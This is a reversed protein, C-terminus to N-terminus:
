HGRERYQSVNRRIQGLHKEVHQVVLHDVIFHAPKRGFRPNRSTAEVDLEADTLNSLTAASDTAAARVAGTVDRLTRTSTNSVAALRDRDTHDRGWLEQPRHIARLAQATWYPIFEQVHCLIDMVTWVDPAPQWTVLDAPLRDVESLMEDASARLRAAAHQGRTEPM